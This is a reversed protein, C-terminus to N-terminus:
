FSFSKDFNTRVKNFFYFVQKSTPDYVARGMTKCVQPISDYLSQIRRNSLSVFPVQDSAVTATSSNIASLWINNTGFVMVENEVEVMNTLGTVNDNLVERTVFDTAKFSQGSTGAVQYIGNTTGVILYGGIAVMQKIVGAGVLEIVGGDNDALENDE